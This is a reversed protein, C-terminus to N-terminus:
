SPPFLLVAFSFMALAIASDECNEDQDLEGAAKRAADSEIRAVERQSAQM